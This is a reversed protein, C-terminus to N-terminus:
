AGTNMREIGPRLEKQLRVFCKRIRMGVREYLRTAGTLSDADVGLAVTKQGRRWFEALVHTLMAEALGRKRYARRVGVTAIEGEDANAEAELECLVLGAIEGTADDTALYWLSPDFKPDNELSSRWFAVLDALSHPVHGYHDQWMDDKAAVVAELEAPYDFTKLTFGAPLPLVTPPEQMTIGMDYFYRVPRYGLSEFFAQDSSGASCGTEPAFREDPHCRELAQLAREESWAMLARMVAEWHEGPTVNWHIEPHTPNYLDSVTVYGVMDGQADFVVQSDTSLNWDPIQWSRLVLDPTEIDDGGRLRIAATVVRAVAEADAMTAARQTYGEPLTSDLETPDQTTM